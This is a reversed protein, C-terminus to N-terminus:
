YINDPYYNLVNSVVEKLTLELLFPNLYFQEKGDKLVVGRDISILINMGFEIARGNTILKHTIKEIFDRELYDVKTAILIKVGKKESCIIEFCKPSIKKIKM